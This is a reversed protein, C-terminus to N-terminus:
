MSVFIPSNSGFHSGLVNFEFYEVAEEISHGKEILISICKEFDYVAVNSINTNETYGILADKYEEFVVADPNIESLRQLIEEKRM